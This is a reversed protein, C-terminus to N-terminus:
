EDDEWRTDIHSIRRDPFFRRDLVVTQGESDRFPKDPTTANQRRDAANTRRDQM